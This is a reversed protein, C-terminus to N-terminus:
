VSGVPQELQVGTVVFGNGAEIAPADDTHTPPVVKNLLVEAPPVQLALLACALTPVPDPRTVPTEVPVVVM